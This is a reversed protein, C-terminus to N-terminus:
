AEGEEPAELDQFPTTSVPRESQALQEPEEAEESPTEETAKESSDAVKIESTLYSEVIVEFDHAKKGKFPIFNSDELTGESLLSGDKRLIRYKVPSPPNFPNGEADLFELIDGKEIPPVQYEKKEM